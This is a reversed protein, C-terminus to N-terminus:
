FFRARREQVMKEFETHLEKTQRSELLKMAANQLAVAEAFYTEKHKKKKKDKLVTRM